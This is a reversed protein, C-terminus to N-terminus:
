PARGIKRFYLVLTTYSSYSNGTTVFNLGSLEHGEVKLDSVLAWASRGNFECIKGDRSSRAEANYPCYLLNGDTTQWHRVEAFRFVRQALGIPIFGQTATEAASNQEPKPQVPARTGGAVVVVAQAAQACCLLLALLYKM